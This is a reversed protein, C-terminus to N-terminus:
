SKEMYCYEIRTIIRNPNVKMHKCFMFIFGKCGLKEFGERRVDDKTISDLRERRVSLIRIVGLPQIKEGPKLGQCKVVGRVYDGDKLFKWGLRRTVDKTRAKFQATTLAFSMNRM